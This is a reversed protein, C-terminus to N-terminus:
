MKFTGKHCLFLIQKVQQDQVHDKDMNQNFKIKPPVKIVKYALHKFSKVIKLVFQVALLKDGWM